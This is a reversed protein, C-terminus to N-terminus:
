GKVSGAVGGVLFRQLFVYAVVLPAAVIMTASALLGWQSTYTGQFAFLGLTIPSKAADPLLITALIIDNWVGIAQLIFITALVPKILPPLFTLM